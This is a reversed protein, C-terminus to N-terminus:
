RVIEAILAALAEFAARKEAKFAHRDYTGRIGGIVHGLCREAHDPNVGAQSMLSRATRRLDHLTWGTVGCQQDFRQKMTSFGSVPHVGDTSFVFASMRPLRELVARAAASLPILHDYPQGPKNKYRSSPITWEDDALEDWRMCAAESRRTATLLIFQILAGFPGPAAATLWVRRLEDESLIRQRARKETTWMGRVIPTRFTDSRGAHWNMIKRIIEFTRAAMVPGRDDAIQDLLKVIESRRIEAIPRAGIKPYVLRALTDSRQDATRLRRGERKLYAESIARLTNTALEAKRRKELVPDGGTAVQGQLIKARKRADKLSLRGDITARRSSGNARYQVVYSKAGAKTVMLGFGPQATDWFITRDVRDDPVASTVYDPTLKIRM